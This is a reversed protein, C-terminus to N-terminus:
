SGPGWTLGLSGSWLAVDHSTAVGDVPQRETTLFRNEVRFAVAWASGLRRELGAGFVFAPGRELRDDVHISELGFRLVPQTSGGRDALPTLDLAIGAGVVSRSELPGLDLTDAAADIRGLWAGAGLAVMGTVRWGIRGEVVPIWAAEHRAALDADTRLAAISATAEPGRTV